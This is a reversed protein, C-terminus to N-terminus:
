QITGRKAQTLWGSFGTPLLNKWSRVRTLAISAFRLLEVSTDLSDTREVARNCAPSPYGSPLSWRSWVWVGPIDKTQRSDEGVNSRSCRRFCHSRSIVARRFTLCSRPVKYPIVLLEPYFECGLFYILVNRFNTRGRDNLDIDCARCIVQCWVPVKYMYTHYVCMHMYVFIYISAYINIFFSCWNTQNNKTCIWV